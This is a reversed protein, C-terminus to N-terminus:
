LENKKPYDYSKLFHGLSESIEPHRMELERAIIFSNELFATYAAPNDAVPRHRFRAVLNRCKETLSLEVPSCFSKLVLAYIYDAAQESPHTLDAAYFRYDRLDDLMAEFAPFYSASAPRLSCIEEEALLLCAKSLNNGHAGDSLHRVPSVTFIVEAGPYERLLRGLLRDWRSVVAEQSLRHRIFREKPQKHCNAVVRGQCDKLSFCFATGFTIFILPSPSGFILEYAEALANNARTLVKQPDTSSFATYIDFCYYLGDSARGLDASTFRRNDLIRELADAVSMPNFLPGFPNSVVRFLDDRM